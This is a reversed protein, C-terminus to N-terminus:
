KGSFSARPEFEDFSEIDKNEPPAAAPVPTSLSATTNAQNPSEIAHPSSSKPASRASPIGRGHTKRTAPVSCCPLHKRMGNTKEYSPPADPNQESFRRTVVQILAQGHRANRVMSARFVGINALALLGRDFFLIIALFTFLIGFGILGLGVKNQEDLEYAMKTPAVGESKRLIRYGHAYPRATYPYISLPEEERHCSVSLSGEKM